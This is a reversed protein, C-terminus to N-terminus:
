IWPRVNSIIFCEFRPRAQSSSCSQNSSIATRDRGVFLYGVRMCECERVSADRRIARTKETRERTAHQRRKVSVNVDIQMGVPLALAATAAMRRASRGASSSPHGAACARLHVADSEAKPRPAIAVFVFVPWTNNVSIFHQRLLRRACLPPRKNSTHAHTHAPLVCSGIIHTRIIIIVVAVLPVVFM